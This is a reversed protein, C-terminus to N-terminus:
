RNFSIREVEFNVKFSCFELISVWQLGKLPLSSYTSEDRDGGRRHIHCPYIYYLLFHSLIIMYYKIYINM